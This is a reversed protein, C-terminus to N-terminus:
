PHLPQLLPSSNSVTAQPKVMASDIAVGALYAVCMLIAVIVAVKTPSLPVIPRGMPPKGNSMGNVIFAAILSLFAGISAIAAAALPCWIFRRVHGRDGPDMGLGFFPWMAVLVALVYLVRVFFAIFAPLKVAQRPAAAEVQRPPLAKEMPPMCRRALYRAWLPYSLLACLVLYACHLEQSGRRGWQQMNAALPPLGLTWFLAAALLLGHRVWPEVELRALKPWFLAAAVLGSIAPWLAWFFWLHAQRFEHGWITETGGEVIAFGAVHVAIATLIALGASLGYVAARISFDANDPLQPM